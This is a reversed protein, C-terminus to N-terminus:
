VRAMIWMKTESAVKKKISQFRANFFSFGRMDWGEKKQFNKKHM